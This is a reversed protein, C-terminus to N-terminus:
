LLTKRRQFQLDDLGAYRVWGYTNEGITVTGTKEPKVMPLTNDDDSCGISVVLLAALINGIIKKM